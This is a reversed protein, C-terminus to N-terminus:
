VARVVGTRMAKGKRANDGVGPAKNVQEERRISGLRTRFPQTLVAPINPVEPHHPRFIFAVLPCIKVLISNLAHQREMNLM